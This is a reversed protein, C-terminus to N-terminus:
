GQGEGRSPFPHNRRLWDGSVIRRRGTAASNLVYVFASDAGVRIVERRYLSGQGTQPDYPSPDDPRCQEYADLAALASPDLIRFLEGTVWGLAPELALGPYDGLDYLTGRFRVARVFALSRRLDLSELAGGGRRLSGYFVVHGPENSM